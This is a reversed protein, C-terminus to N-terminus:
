NDPVNVNIEARERQLFQDPRRYAMFRECPPQSPIHRLGWTASAPLRTVDQELMGPALALRPADM